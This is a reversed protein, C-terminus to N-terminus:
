APPDDPPYDIPFSGHWEPRIIPMGGHFARAILQDDNTLFADAGGAVASALHLADMSRLGHQLRLERADNVVRTTVDVRLVTSRSLARMAREASEATRRDTPGGLVELPMLVSTVIVLEARDAAALVERLDEAYPGAGSLATIWSQADLYPRAYQQREAAM